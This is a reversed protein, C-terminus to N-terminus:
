QPWVFARYKQTLFSVFNKRKEGLLLSVSICLLPSTIRTLFFGLYENNICKLRSVACDSDSKYVYLYKVCHSLCLTEYCVVCILCPFLTRKHPREIGKWSWVQMYIVHKYMYIAHKNNFPIKRRPTRIKTLNMYEQLHATQPVCFTKSELIRNSVWM